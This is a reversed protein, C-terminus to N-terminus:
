SLNFLRSSKLRVLIIAPMESIIASTHVWFRTIEVNSVSLNKAPDYSKDGFIVFGLCVLKLNLFVENKFM